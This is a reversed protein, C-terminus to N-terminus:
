QAAELVPWRQMKLCLSPSLCQESYVITQMGLHKGWAFWARPLPEGADSLTDQQFWQYTSAVDLPLSTPLHEDPATVLPTVLLTDVLGYVYGPMQDRQRQLVVGSVPVSDWNPPQDAYRVGVWDTELGATSVIRGNQTKIVERRASYWTEIEGAPDPDAYGMVM